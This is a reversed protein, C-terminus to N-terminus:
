KPHRPLPAKAVHTMMRSFHEGLDESFKHVSLIGSVLPHPSASPNAYCKLPIFCIAEGRTPSAPPVKPVAPHPPNRPCLSGPNRSVCCHCM